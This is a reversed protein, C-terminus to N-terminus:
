GAPCHVGGGGRCEGGARGADGRARPEGRTGGRPHFIRLANSVAVGDHLVAAGSRPRGASAGGKGPEPRAGAGVLRRAPRARRHGRDDGLDRQLHALDGPAPHSHVRDGGPLDIGDVRQPRDTRGRGHGVGEGDRQAGVGEEGACGLQVGHRARASAMASQLQQVRLSGRHLVRPVRWPARLRGGDRAGRRRAAVHRAGSSGPASPPGARLKNQKPQPQVVRARAESRRCSPQHTGRTGRPGPGSWSRSWSRGEVSIKTERQSPSLPSSPARRQEALCGCWATRCRGGRGEGGTDWGSRGKAM